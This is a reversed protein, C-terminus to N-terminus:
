IRKIFSVNLLVIFSFRFSYFLALRAKYIVYSCDASHGVQYNIVSTLYFQDESFEGLM